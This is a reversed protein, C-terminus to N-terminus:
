TWYENKKKKRGILYFYNENTHQQYRFGGSLFMLYTTLLIWILIFLILSKRMTLASQVSLSCLKVGNTVGIIQFSFTVLKLQLRRM